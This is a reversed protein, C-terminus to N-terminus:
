AVSNNNLQKKGWIQYDLSYKGAGTIMLSISAALLTMIFEYGGEQVSFGNKAHVTVFAVVAVIVFLKAVWHTLLGLMMFIGGVLEVVTLAVAFFAPAPIGLSGLFGGVGEMGTQYKAFGHFAFVAGVAVRLVLPAISGYGSTCTCGFLKNM